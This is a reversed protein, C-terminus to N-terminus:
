IRPHVHFHHTALIRGCLALALPRRRCCFTAYSICVVNSRESSSTRDVEMPALPSSTKSEAVARSRNGNESSHLFVSRILMQSDHDCVLDFALVCVGASTICLFLESVRQTRRQSVNRSRTRGVGGDTVVWEVVVVLFSALLSTVATEASALSTVISDSCTSCGVNGSVGMLNSSIFECESIAVMNLCIAARSSDQACPRSHCVFGGSAICLILDISAHPMKQLAKWSGFAAQQVYMVAWLDLNSEEWFLSREAQELLVPDEFQKTNQIRFTYVSNQGLNQDRPAGMYVCTIIAVTASCGVM